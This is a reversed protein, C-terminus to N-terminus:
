CLPTTDQVDEELSILSDGILNKTDCPLIYTLNDIADYSQSKCWFKVFYIIQAGLCQVNKATGDKFILRNRELWVCWLVAGRVMEVVNSDKMPISTDIDRSCSYVRKTKNQGTDTYL